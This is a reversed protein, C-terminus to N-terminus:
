RAAHMIKATLFIEKCLGICAILYESNLKWHMAHEPETYGHM